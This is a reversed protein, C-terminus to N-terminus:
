SSVSPESVTKEEVKQIESEVKIAEKDPKEEVKENESEVKVSEKKIEKKDDEVKVTEKKVEEKEEEIPERKVQNEDKTDGTIKDKELSMSRIECVKLPHVKNLHSRLSSQLKHNILDNIFNDYTIGVVYKKIFSEAQRRIKTGVSGSTLTRTILLPKIIVKKNDSTSCGFSMSIKNVNRRVWRKVSSQVMDYGIIHTHAKDNEVSTVEFNININQKKVDNTLNMLNQRVNKGMIKRPDYVITEGLVVNRFIKPALIPYWLKKLVKARAM